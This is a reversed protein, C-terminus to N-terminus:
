CFTNYVLIVQLLFNTLPLMVLLAEVAATQSNICKCEEIKAGLQVKQTVSREKSNNLVITARTLLDNMGVFLPFFSFEVLDTFM